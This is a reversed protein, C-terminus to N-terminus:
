ARWIRRFEERQADNLLRDIISLDADANVLRHDGNSVICFDDGTPHMLCPVKHMKLALEGIIRVDENREQQSDPSYRPQWRKIFDRTYGSAAGGCHSIRMHANARPIVMHPGTGRLMCGSRDLFEVARRAYFPGYLDDDDAFLVFDGRAGYLGANRKTCLSRDTSRVWVVRSQGSALEHARKVAPTIDTLDDDTVVVIETPEVVQQLGQSIALPLLDYGLEARYHALLVWSVTLRQAM